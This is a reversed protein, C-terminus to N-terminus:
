VPYATIFRPDRQGQEVIWITRLPVPARGRAPLMGDVVYRIGYEDGVTEM